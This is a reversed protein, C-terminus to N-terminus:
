KKSGKASRKKAAEINKLKDGLDWLGGWSQKLAKGTKKGEKVMSTKKKKDM